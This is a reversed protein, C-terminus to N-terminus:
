RDESAEDNQPAIDALLRNMHEATEFTTDLQFKLEPVARLHLGHGLEGRIPRARRRLAALVAETNKGGLPMVFVTANRLDPSVKVESVTISVGELAPENLPTRDIIEALRRRIHEGVRLQRQSPARALGSRRSM